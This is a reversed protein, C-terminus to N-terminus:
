SDAVERYWYTYATRFGFREYVRKAPNTSVVQLYANKAGAAHADALARALLASALGRGRHTVATVVDFVGITDGEHLTLVHATPRASQPDRTAYSRLTFPLSQWRATLAAIETDSDGRLEQVVRAATNPIASMDIDCDVFLNKGDFGQDFLSQVSLTQVCTEDFKECGMSALKTDLTTDAVFPSIRFVCPLGVRQYLARVEALNTEFSRVGPYFANVCRSRKAKSPSLGVSWGDIMVGREARSANQSIEEIRRLQDHTFHTSM